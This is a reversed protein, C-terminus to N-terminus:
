FILHIISKKKIVEFISSAVAERLEESSCRNISKKRM